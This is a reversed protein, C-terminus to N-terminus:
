ETKNFATIPPYEGAALAAEMQQILKEVTITPRSAGRTAVVLKAGWTPGNILAHNMLYVTIQAGRTDGDYIAKDKPTAFCAWIGESSGDDHIINIKCNGHKEGDKIRRELAAITMKKPAKTTTKKM